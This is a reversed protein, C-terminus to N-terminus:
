LINELLYFNIDRWLVKIMTDRITLKKNEINNYHLLHAKYLPSKVIWKNKLTKITKRKNKTGFISWKLSQSVVMSIMFFDGFHQHFNM